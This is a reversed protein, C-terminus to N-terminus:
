FYITIKMDLLINNLLSLNMFYEETGRTDSSMSITICKKLSLASQFLNCFFAYGRALHNNILLTKKEAAIAVSCDYRLLIM